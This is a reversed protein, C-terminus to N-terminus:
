FRFHEAGRRILIRLRLSRFGFTEFAVFGEISRAIEDGAKFRAANKVQEGMMEGRFRKPYMVFTVPRVARFPATLKHGRITDVVSSKAQNRIPISPFPIFPRSPCIQVQAAMRADSGAPSIRLRAFSRLRGCGECVVHRSRAIASRL